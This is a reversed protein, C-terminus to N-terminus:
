LDQTWVGPPHAAPTLWLHPQLARYGEESEPQWPFHGARDPWVVELVPFPPRRYFMIAAGFFAKYWRYNVTRLAVPYDVVIGHREQGDEVKRGDVIEGGLTNLCTQMAYVDLGFMALEPSRHNHWLGITFAWGPGQGDAPIMVVQWGHERVQVVTREAMSDLGDGYDHCLVCHCLDQEVTMTAVNRSEAKEGPRSRMRRLREESLRIPEM